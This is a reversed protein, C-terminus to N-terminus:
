ETHYLFTRYVHVHLLPHIDPFPDFTHVHNEVHTSCPPLYPFQATDILLYITHHKEHLSIPAGVEPKILRKPCQGIQGIM